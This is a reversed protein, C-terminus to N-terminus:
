EEWGWITIWYDAEISGTKAKIVEGAAIQAIPWGTYIANSGVGTGGDIGHPLNLHTTVGNDFSVNWEKVAGNNTNAIIGMLYFTKGATVTHLIQHATNAGVTECILTQDSSPTPMGKRLLQLIQYPITTVM